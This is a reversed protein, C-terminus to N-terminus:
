VAGRRILRGDPLTFLAAVDDFGDVRAMAEDPPLAYLGTSLADATTADPALVSVALYHNACRGTRPDFLHHHHFDFRTGYGGSTALARDALPLSRAIRSPDGPDRLGVRWPRGEAHEGLVRTEGMDVYVRSIGHHRLVETVRDTIYGQAIGNLTVAMGPQGLSIARGNVRVRSQGVLARASELTAPDPGIGDRPNDAFHNVYLNWLPQVTIDFAGGTSQGFGLARTMVTTLDPPAPM